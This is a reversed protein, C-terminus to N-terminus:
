CLVLSGKSHFGPGGHSSLEHYRVLVGGPSTIGLGPLERSGGDGEELVNAPSEATTWVTSIFDPGDRIAKSDIIKDEAIVSKGQANFGSVVRRYQGPRRDSAFMTSLAVPNEPNVLLPFSSTSSTGKELGAPPSQLPTISRRCNDIM